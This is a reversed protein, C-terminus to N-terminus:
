RKHADIHDWVFNLDAKVEVLSERLPEIQAKFVEAKVYTGNIKQLLVDNAKYMRNELWIGLVAIGLTVTPVIVTAMIGVLHIAQEWENLM